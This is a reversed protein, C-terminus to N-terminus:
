VTFNEYTEEQYRLRMHEVVLPRLKKKGVFDASLFWFIM